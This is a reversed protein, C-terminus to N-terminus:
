PSPFLRSAVLSVGLKQVGHRYNFLLARLTSWLTEERDRLVRIWHSRMQPVKFTLPPRRRSSTIVLIM